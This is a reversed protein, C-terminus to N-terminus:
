SEAGGIIEAVTKHPMRAKRAIERSTPPRGLSEELENSARRIKKVKEALHVPIRITRSKDAISRTIAQKIWWFAYTSFKHGRRHDFKEVAKMLGINGEQVLDMFSLGQNCFKKAVHAVLRLNAQILADRNREIRTKLRRLEAWAENRALEPHGKLYANLREFSAEIEQMTWLERQPRGLEGCRTLRRCGAPLRMATEAFAVRAERLASALRVEGDRDLLPTAGMERLYIPILDVESGFRSSREEGAEPPSDDDWLVEGQGEGENYAM